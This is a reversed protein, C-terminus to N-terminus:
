APVDVSNVNRAGNSIGVVSMEDRFAGPWKANFAALGAVIARSAIANASEGRASRVEIWVSGRFRIWFQVLLIRM